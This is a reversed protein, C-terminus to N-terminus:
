PNCQYEEPYTNPHAAACLAGCYPVSGVAHVESPEMPSGCGRCVVVPTMAAHWLRLAEEAVCPGLYMALLLLAGVLSVLSGATTLGEM